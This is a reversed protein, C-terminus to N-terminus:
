QRTNIGGVLAPPLLLAGGGSGLPAPPSGAGPVSVVASAASVSGRGAPVRVCGMRGGADLGGGSM